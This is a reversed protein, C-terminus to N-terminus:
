KVVLMKRAQSFPGAQLRYLYVGSAVPEGLQDRGDWHVASAGTLYRGAPRHGLDFSRVLAGRVDYIGLRVRAPSQLQFPIWTEPNFPNPYNALLATQIPLPPGSEVATPPPAVYPTMDWLLIGGSSGVSALTRGDPSFTVSSTSGSARLVAKPTHRQWVQWGTAGTDADWLRVTGDEGGSALTTGDPSLAVSTVGFPEQYYDNEFGHGMHAKIQGTRVDWLWIAVCLSWGGVALTNGDRSFALSAVGPCCDPDGYGAMTAELVGTEVNWLEPGCRGPTALAEGDPSFAIAHPARDLFTSKLQGTDPDWLLVQRQGRNGGSTALTKGDPSYALAVVEGTHAQFTNKLYGTDVDWLRVRGDVGASAVTKGEPSFVARYRRHEEEQWRSTFWVGDGHKLSARHRGTKAEWLRVRGDWGGTALITGDPSFVVSSFPATHGRVSDKVYGTGPKELEGTEDWSRRDWDWLRVAALGQVWGQSAITKGDPFFVVSGYGADLTAKLQGTDAEWLRLTDDGPNSSALTKGDPSFAVFPAPGTGGGHSLAPVRRNTPLVFKRAGTDLDWLSIRWDGDGVAVTRGDPSFAVSHPSWDALTAKHHGSEVEWLHVDWGTTALTRGDPSFLMGKVGVSELSAKLQGNDVDWLFVHDSDPPKSYQITALTQGDPSFLMSSAVELITAPVVMSERAMWLLVNGDASGTALISGDPSFVVPGHAHELVKRYGTAAAWLRVQGDAGATALTAGDPSFSMSNGARDLIAKLDGTAAEWVRVKDGAGAIALLSGDPSVVMRGTELTARLQYASADWLRVRGDAGAVAMTRGDPAFAVSRIEESLADLTTLLDATAPEWLRVKGDAGASALTTGGPAWAVSHVAGTHGELTTEFYGTAARWLRIRGSSGASALTTGDPSFAVSRVAERYGGLTTKLHGTATEWIRVWGDSGATALASGDRSFAVSWVVEAPGELTTRLHGTDAEWLCVRGDASGTALTSGDPSFAVSWVAETHGELITRPDTLQSGLEWLHVRGDAGGSALLAESPSFALSLAEHSTDRTHRAEPFRQSLPEFIALGLDSAVAFRTGDQSYAIARDGAGITGALRAIAGEPLDGPSGDQARSDAVSLSWVLLLGVPFPLKTM